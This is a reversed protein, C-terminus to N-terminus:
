QQAVPSAWASVLMDSIGLVPSGYSEDKRKRQSEREKEQLLDLLRYKLFDTRFISQFSQHQLELVKVM